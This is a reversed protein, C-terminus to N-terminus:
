SVQPIDIWNKIQYVKYFGRKLAIAMKPWSIVTPNQHPRSSFIEIRILMVVFLKSM